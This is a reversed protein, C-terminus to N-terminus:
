SLAKPAIFVASGLLTSKSLMKLAVSYSGSMCLLTDASTKYTSSSPYAFKKLAAYRLMRSPNTNMFYASLSFPSEVSFCYMYSYMYFSM